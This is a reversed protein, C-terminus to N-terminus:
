SVGISSVISASSPSTWYCYRSLMQYSFHIAFSISYAIRMTIRLRLSHWEAYALAVAILVSVM